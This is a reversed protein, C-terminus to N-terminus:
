FGSEADSITKACAKTKVEVSSIFVLAM